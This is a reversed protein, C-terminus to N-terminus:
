GGRAGVHGHSGFGGRTGSEVGAPAHAAGSSFGSIGGHFNHGPGPDHSDRSRSVPDSRYWPGYYFMSTGTTHGGIPYDAGCQTDSYDAICDERNAYRNRQVDTGHFIAPLGVAGAIAGMLVLPVAASKKPTTDM